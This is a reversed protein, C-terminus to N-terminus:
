PHFTLHHYAFILYFLPLYTSCGQDRNSMEAGKTSSKVDNHQKTSMFTHNKKNPSTQKSKSDLVKPFWKEKKKKEQTSKSKHITNSLGM